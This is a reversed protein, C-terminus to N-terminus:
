SCKFQTVFLVRGDDLCHLGLLFLDFFDSFRDLEDSTMDDAIEPSYSVCAVLRYDGTCAQAQAWEELSGSSRYHAPGLDNEPNYGHQEGDFLPTIDGSPEWRIFLPSVFIREGSHPWREELFYGLLKPLEERTAHHLEFAVVNKSVVPHQVGFYDAVNGFFAEAVLRTSPTDSALRCGQLCRPPRDIVGQMLQSPNVKDEKLRLITAECGSDAFASSRRWGM